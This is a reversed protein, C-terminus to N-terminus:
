VERGGHYPLAARLDETVVLIGRRHAWCGLSVAAAVASPHVPRTEVAVALLWPGGGFGSPGIPLGELAEEIVEELEAADPDWSRSGLPSRLLARKSLLAASEATPGLGVGVVAPPCARPAVEVAARVVLEALGERWRLPEFVRARGGHSAGGGALYLVVEASSSGEVIEVHIWPEASSRPEGSRWRVSNPRLLGLGQAEEVAEALSALLLSKWPFQEGIRAFFQPTGTDQCIPSRSTEALEANALLSEYVLRALPSDARSALGALRAKVDDPLSTSTAAVLELAVERLRSREWSGREGPPM